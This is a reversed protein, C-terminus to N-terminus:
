TAKDVGQQLDVVLAAGGGQVSRCAVCGVAWRTEGHQPQQSCM